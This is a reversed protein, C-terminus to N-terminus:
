NLVGKALTELAEQQVEHRTKRGTKGAPINVLQLLLDGTLHLCMMAADGRASRTPSTNHPTCDTAASDAAAAAATPPASTFQVAPTGGAAAAAAPM